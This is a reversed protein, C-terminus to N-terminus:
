RGAVWRGWFDSYFRLSSRMLSHGQLGYCVFPSAAWFSSSFSLRRNGMDFRMAKDGGWWGCLRDRFGDNVTIIASADVQGHRSNVFLGGIAGPGSNVYKYNCWAAFDVDWETLRLDVNGVAHALDWGIFIGHRHAHATIAKIDLYQGTYYQIGPLLILATTSAHKDIVSLVHSTSITAVTPEEPEVLLIAKNPDFDHHPIQSEM